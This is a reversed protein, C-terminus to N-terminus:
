TEVANGEGKLIALLQDDELFFPDMKGAARSINVILQGLRWDPNAKWFKEIAKLTKPIRNPDRM